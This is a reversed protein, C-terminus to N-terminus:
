LFDRRKERLKGDYTVISGNPSFDYVIFQRKVNFTFYCHRASIGKLNPMVIDCSNADTGVVFGVAAGGKPGPNFTLQLGPKFLHTLTQDSDEDSNLSATPQRSFADSAKQQAPFHQAENDSSCVAAHSHGLPDNDAAHLCAILNANDM